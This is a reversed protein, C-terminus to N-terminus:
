RKYTCKDYESQVKKLHANLANKKTPCVPKTRKQNQKKKFFLIFYFFEIMMM